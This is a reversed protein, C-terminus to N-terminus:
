CGFFAKARRALSELEGAEIDISAITSWSGSLNVIEASLLIHGRPEYTARLNYEGEMAGWGKPEKWGSWENNMQEFLVYPSHGYPPNDVRISAEIGNGAITFMYSELWGDDSFKPGTFVVKLDPGNLIEFNDVFESQSM